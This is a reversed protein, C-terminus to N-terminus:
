GQALAAVEAVTTREPDLAMAAEAQCARLLRHDATLVVLRDGGGLGSAALDLAARLLVADTANINHREIFVAARLVASRPVDVHTFRGSLVEWRCADVALLAADGTLRGANRARVVVSLTELAGLTLCLLREDPLHDLLWDLVESGPEPVYRRALASADLLFYTV